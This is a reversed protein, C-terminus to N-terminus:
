GLWELLLSSKYHADCYRVLAVSLKFAGESSGHKVDGSLFANPAPSVPHLNNGFTCGLTMFIWALDAIEHALQLFGVCGRPKIQHKWGQTTMM